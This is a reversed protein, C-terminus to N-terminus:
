LIGPILLESLLCPHDGGYDEGSQSIDIHLIFQKEPRKLPLCIHYVSTTNLVINQIRFIFVSPANHTIKYYYVAASFQRFVHLGGSMKDGRRQCKVYILIMKHIILGKVLQFEQFPHFLTRVTRSACTRRRFEIFLIEFLVIIMDIGDGQRCRQGSGIVTRFDCSPHHLFLIRVLLDM